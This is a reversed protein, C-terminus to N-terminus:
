HSTSKSPLYFAPRYSVICSILGAEIYPLFLDQQAKTFRQVEDVFLVTKKRCCLDAQQIYSRRNISDYGTLKLINAAEDFIKRVDAANSSTASVEKFSSSSTNAIVKALSTKGTGPPGWFIISGLRDQLILNRLLGSQGLLHEQGVVDDLHRPRVLEALPKAAELAAAGSLATPANHNGGTHHSKPRKSPGAIQSTSSSPRTNTPEKRKSSGSLSPKVRNPWVAEAPAPQSNHTQSSSAQPGSTCSLDLHANLLNEQM